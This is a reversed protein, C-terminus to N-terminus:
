AGPKEIADESASCGASIKEAKFVERYFQPRSLFMKGAKKRCPPDLHMKKAKNYHFDHDQLDYETGEWTLSGDGDVMERLNTPRVDPLHKAPLRLVRGLYLSQLMAFWCPMHRRAFIGLLDADSGRMDTMALANGNLVCPDFDNVIHDWRLDFVFAYPNADFLASEAAAARHTANPWGVAVRWFDFMPAIKSGMGDVTDLGTPLDVPSAELFRLSGRGRTWPAYWEELHRELGGRPSGTSERKKGSSAKGWEEVKASCRYTTGFVDVGDFGAEEVLTRFMRAHSEFVARQVRLGAECCRTRSLREYDNRFSEGRLLVAIRGNGGMKTGTPGQFSPRTANLLPPLRACAKEYVTNAEAAELPQDTVEGTPRWFIPMLGGTSKNASVAERSPSPNQTDATSKIGNAKSTVGLRGCLAQYRRYLKVYRTFVLAWYCDISDESLVSKVLRSGAAAIKEAQEEHGAVWELQELFDSADAKVFIVNERHRLTEYWFEVFPSEVVFVLSGCALRYKLSAAASHGVM